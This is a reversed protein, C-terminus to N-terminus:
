SMVAPVHTAVAVMWSKEGTHLNQPKLRMTHDRVSSTDGQLDHMVAGAVLQLAQPAFSRPYLGGSALLGM